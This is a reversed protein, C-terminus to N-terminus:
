KKDRLVHINKFLYDAASYVTLIVCIYILVRGFIVFFNAFLNNEFVILVYIIMTMQAATRIKGSWVAAIAIGKDAAVMRLANVIFDRGIIIIVAWSPILNLGVMAILASAVLLKDAIPDMFIGFNSVLNHKRALHGDLFDTISAAIFITVAILRATTGDIFYGGALLMALFAPILLIRLITLKNPLNM